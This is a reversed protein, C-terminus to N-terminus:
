CFYATFFVSIRTSPPKGNIACLRKGGNRVSAGFDSSTSGSSALFLPLCFVISLLYGAGRSISVPDYSSCALILSTM